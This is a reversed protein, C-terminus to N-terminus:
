IGPTFHLPGAMKLSAPELNLQVQMQTFDPKALITERAMIRKMNDFTTQHLLTGKWKVTISTLATLAAPVHSRCLWM